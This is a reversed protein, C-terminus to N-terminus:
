KGLRGKKFLVCGEVVANRELSSDWWMEMIATLDHGKSQVCM